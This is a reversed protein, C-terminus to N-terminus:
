IKNKNQWWERKAVNFAQNSKEIITAKACKIRSKKEIEMKKSRKKLEWKLIEWKKNMM